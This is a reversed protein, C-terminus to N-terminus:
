IQHGFCSQDRKLFKWATNLENDQTGKILSIQFVKLPIKYVWTEINGDKEIHAFDFLYCSIYM